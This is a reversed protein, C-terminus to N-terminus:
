ASISFKTWIVGDIEVDRSHETHKFFQRTTPHRFTVDIDIIDPDENDQSANVYWQNGDRSPLITEMQHTIARLMEQREQSAPMKTGIYRDMAQRVNRQIQAIIADVDHDPM